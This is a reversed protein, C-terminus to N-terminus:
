SNEKKMNEFLKRYEDIFKEENTAEIKEVLEISKKLVEARKKIEDLFFQKNFTGKSLSLSNTMERISDEMKNEVAVVEKFVGIQLERKREELKICNECVLETLDKISIEGGSGLNVPEPKNYKETALIIGEAADEVYFFERTPKRNWHNSKKPIIPFYKVFSFYM